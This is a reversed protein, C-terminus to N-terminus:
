VDLDKVERAHAEIFARRPEVKEGLLLSFTRDAEVADDVTVSMMRRTSPAMTTEELEIPNMEGLGKFRQVYPSRGHIEKQRAALEQDDWAYAVQKGSTVKYLPPRALFIHGQDV